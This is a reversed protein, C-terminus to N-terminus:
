LRQEPSLVGSEALRAVARARHSVRDKAADSAEGFTIGLDLSLFSPDYGFGASGRPYVLTGLCVGRATVPEAAPQAFAVVCVYRCRRDDPSTRGVEELLGRLRDQDSAEPGMWRASTPGPWGRLADVEIGSDDALAACQTADAVALAKAMANETYGPGPEDLDGGVGADDLSRLRWPYAALLRAFERVKGPNRTAVVLRPAAAADRVTSM